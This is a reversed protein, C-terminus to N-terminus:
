KERVILNVNGLECTQIDDIALDPKIDPMFVHAGAVDVGKHNKSAYADVYKQLGLQRVIDQAYGAGGGSWVVIKTNKMSALAVLLSRVRENAIPYGRQLAASDNRILTGDVDFAITVTKM